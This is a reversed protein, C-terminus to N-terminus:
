LKLLEAEWYEILAEIRGTQDLTSTNEDSNAIYDLDSIYAKLEKITEKIKLIKNDM